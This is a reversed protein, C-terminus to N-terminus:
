RGEFSPPRREHFAARGEVVDASGWAAAFAAEVAPDGAGRELTLKHGAITLPALRAIEAAWDIAAELDGMRQVMGLRHATEGDIVEAALLMARAPGAGALAVVREVTRADVM